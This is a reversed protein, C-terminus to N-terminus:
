RHRNATRAGQIYTFSKEGGELCAERSKFTRDRVGRDVLGPTMGKLHTGKSLYKPPEPIEVTHADAVGRPRM